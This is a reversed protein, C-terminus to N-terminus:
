QPVMFNELVEIEVDCDPFDSKIQSVTDIIAESPTTKYFVRNLHQYRKSEILDFQDKILDANDFDKFKIIITGTLIGYQNTRENLVVPLTNSNSNLQSLGSRFIIFNGKNQIVDQELVAHKSTLNSSKSASIESVKEVQISKASIVEPLFSYVEKRSSFQNGKILNSITNKHKLEQKQNVEKSNAFIPQTCNSLLVMVSLLYIIKNM